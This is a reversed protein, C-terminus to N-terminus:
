YRAIKIEFYGLSDMLAQLPEIVGISEINMNIINRYWWKMKKYIRDSDLLNFSKNFQQHQKGNLEFEKLGKNKEKM